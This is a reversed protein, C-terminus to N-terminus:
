FIIKRFSFNHIWTIVANFRNELSQINNGQSPKAQIRPGLKLILALQRECMFSSNYGRCGWYLREIKTMSISAFITASTVKKLLLLWWDRFDPVVLIPVFKIFSLLNSCQNFIYKYSLIMQSVKTFLTAIVQSSGCIGTLKM